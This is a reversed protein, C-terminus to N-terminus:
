KRRRFVISEERKPKMQVITGPVRNQILCKKVFLWTLKYRNMDKLENLKM